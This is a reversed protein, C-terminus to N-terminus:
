WPFPFFFRFLLHKLYKPTAIHAHADTQRHIQTDWVVGTCFTLHLFLISSKFLDFFSDELTWICSQPTPLVWPLPPSPTGKKWGGSWAAAASRELTDDKVKGLLLYLSCVGTLPQSHPHIIPAIHFLVCCLTNKKEETQFCITAILGSGNFISFLSFSFYVLRGSTM